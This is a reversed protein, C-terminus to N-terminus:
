ADSADLTWPLEDRMPIMVDDWLLVIPVEDVSDEHVRLEFGGGIGLGSLIAM